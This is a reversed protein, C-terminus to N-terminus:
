EKAAEEALYNKIALNIIRTKEGKGGKDARKKIAKVLDKHIYFTERKFNNAFLSRKQIQEDIVVKEVTENDGQKKAKKEDKHKKKSKGNSEVPILEVAASSDEATKACIYEDVKDNDPKPKRKM